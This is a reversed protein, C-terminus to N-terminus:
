FGLDEKVLIFTISRGMMPNEGKFIVIKNLATDVGYLGNIRKNEQPVVHQELRDMAAKMDSVIKKTSVVFILHPSTNVVYPLQSGTNSAIIFEGSEVLAHVSGLYYSSLIAQRRLQSQKGPDKEALIGEHLNNWGHASGKLYDTFGIQSLTTSSGNMVSSGAPIHEQIRALAETGSQAVVTEYGHKKLNDVTRALMDEAALKNYDM